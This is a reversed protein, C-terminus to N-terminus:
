YSECAIGDGDGDFNHPDSGISLFNKAPAVDPCDLDYSVVEICAGSYNPDCPQPPPPDNPPTPPEEPDSSGPPAPECGIGDFDGDFGHPDDGIVQFSSYPIEDCDLDPPPSPICLDPYSPDCDIDTTDVLFAAIWQGATLHYWTCATNCGAIQVATGKPAFGIKAYNTGPGARLNANANVTGSTPIQAHIPQFFLLFLAFAIVVPSVRAKMNEESNDHPSSASTLSTIYGCNRSNTLQGKQEPYTPQKVGQTLAVM